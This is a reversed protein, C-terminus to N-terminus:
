WVRATSCETDNNRAADYLWGGKLVDKVCLRYDGRVAPLSFEAIGRRGTISTADLTSGDPLTWLAEVRAGDVMSRTEDFIHIKAVVKDSSSYARTTWTLRNRQIWMAVPDEALAPLAIALSLATAVVVLYLTKSPKRV